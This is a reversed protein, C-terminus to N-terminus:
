PEIYIATHNQILTNIYERIEGTSSISFGEPYTDAPQAYDISPVDPITSLAEDENTATATSTNRSPLTVTAPRQRSSSKLSPKFQQGRSQEIRAEPRYSRPLFAVTWFRWTLLSGV